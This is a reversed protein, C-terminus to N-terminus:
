ESLVRKDFYDIPKEEDEIRVKMEKNKWLTYM